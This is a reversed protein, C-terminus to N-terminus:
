GRFARRLADGVPKIAGEFDLVSLSVACPFTDHGLWVIFGGVAPFRNRSATAAYGLWEAQRAQSHAVWEDLTGTGDWRKYEGLWWASSHSWRQQLAAREAPTATPGAMDFRELLDISSAGSMGVESRLTSDDADWYRKWDEFSKDYEWPGHVDHHVGTGYDDERAWTSPGLPSTAVYRRTPDDDAFAYKAAALAPHTDDLPEIDTIVPSDTTLENGGGWVALSAHHSIRRAYSRAIEALEAAFEPDDPPSNDIGSSSLPLEQWVLFGYEDALDYFEARELAAGGWVRLLVVGLDRYANFRLRYDEIRVDAYDPRIPVWNVGALFIRRGNLELLWPEASAPAGETTLWRLDRFGVRRTVSDGPIEVTVEYLNRDGATHVTWAEVSGVNLYHWEGDASITHGASTGPGTITVTGSQGAESATVRVRLRGTGAQADYEPLVRVDDIVAGARAELAIPGAIGLQVIRPTWDWGYNFRAKWERIRSTRGIQGLDDPVQTFVITLDRGGGAIAETLDFEVPILSGRFRAVEESDVLVVGAYDLSEATLIIRHGAAADFMDAPLETTYSWHRNEIWESARSQTGVYPSPVIGAEVLAGRVSSPVWVTLAAVDNTGDETRAFSKGMEWDNQRWGRLTWPQESLNWRRRM